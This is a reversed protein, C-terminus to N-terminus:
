DSDIRLPKDLIKLMKSLENDNHDTYRFPKINLLNMKNFIHANPNDDIVVTNNSSYEEYKEWIRDLPKTAYVVKNITLRLCHKGTYIFKINIGPFLIKIVIKVYEPEGASWIGIDYGLKFCQGLFSFLGPRIFVTYNYIDLPFRLMEQSVKSENIKDREMADIMTNDLDLVLLKRDKVDTIDM